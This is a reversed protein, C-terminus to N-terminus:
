QTKQCKKTNALIKKIENLKLFKRSFDIGLAEGIEKLTENYFDFLYYNEKLHSCSCSQLCELIASTSYKNNLKNELLRQLVLSVFCTLFHADIHDQRSLFVPRTELDSKTVRFTEEIKWLGKYINLIKRDSQEIESTVIAYYGDYKEEENLKEEDFCLLSYVDNAIEGTTKDIKLNKIYKSAGYNQSHNYKSPESIFENAKAIANARELKARKAYKESYIILHKEDINVLTKKGSNVNTVFIQRPCLRSKMKFGNEDNLTTYGDNDLVYDKFEKKAKLVSFSFVYGNGNAVTHAINDGSIIGKDAVIVVKGLSYSDQIKEMMPLLTQSDNTNGPFLGYYIPLGNTDMFLGMQVIPNPRHEKSVGKKRLEDQNDIEFYYNTVDYYVLSTDRGFLEKIHNHIWLMLDNKYKKFFSLSRYIDDLSFDNNEFFMEKCEYTKKKSSPYLLRSFVILKFINNLNYSITLHRQRNILFKDIELFHYLYSFAAYGFNKRNNQDSKLEETLSIDLTIPKHEENRLANLKDVEAKFHSIPDPYQKELVDLYGLTKINVTKTYGLKKDYFGDAISLYIRGSKQKSQKLYM